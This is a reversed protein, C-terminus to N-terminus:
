PRQSGQQVQDTPPKVIVLPQADLERRYFVRPHQVRKDSGQRIQQAGGQLGSSEVSDGNRHVSSKLLEPVRRAAYDLWERVNVEGDKPSTDARDTKLGEEVLAYTLLGHGLQTEEMADEYGESAALVYMGKEYALQALGKSNMPGRREEDSDLAQGSNCADIVMVLKGAEIGEFARLLEEDSISHELITYLTKGDLHNKRGTYGLDYPIMYFHSNASTGHGAYYVFVTDEPQAPDLDQIATGQPANVGALRNLTGLINDKTADSNFLSVVEIRSFRNLERQRRTLEESFSQADQTAYRLDYSGNVYKNIGIAIIYAVGQRQLSKAGTVTLQADRSKVNSDNFAYATFRNTGAIIPVTIQYRAKDSAEGHWIKVLSGNRFLRVDRVGSPQSRKLDPPASEVEVVLMITRSPVPAEPLSSSLSLKVLPQRRDVDALDRPARPRKGAIIDALLGPYYFENFFAETPLVDGLGNGFRWMIDTWAGPSGDFLGDPSVVLWDGGRPSLLFAAMDRHGIDWLAVTGKGASALWKSNPSFTPSYPYTSLNMLERKESLDWVSQGWVWMRGGQSIATGGLLEGDFSEVINNWDPGQWMRAWVPSVASLSGTVSDVALGRVGCPGPGGQLQQLEAVWHAPAQCDLEKVKQGSMVDWISIADGRSSATAIWKGNPHFALLPGGGNLPIHLTQIEEGSSSKWIKTTGEVGAAALLTGDHSFTLSRIDPSVQFTKARRKDLDWLQVFGSRYGVALFRGDPSLDFTDLEEDGAWLNSQLAGSKLDWLKIQARDLAALYQSQSTFRVSQLNANNGLTLSLKMTSLDFILVHGLSGVALTQSDPSSTIGGSFYMVTHVNETDGVHILRPSGGTHWKHVEQGRIADWVRVQYDEDASAIFRSDCSVALSQVKSDSVLTKELVGSAANWMKIFKDDGASVVTQGDCSFALARIYDTHGKLVKLQEGTSPDWFTVNRDVGGSILLSGDPSAAIALISGMPSEITQLVRLSSDLVTIVGQASAVAIWSGRPDVALGGEVIGSLPLYRNPEGGFGVSMVGVWDTIVVGSGDSRFSVNSLLQKALQGTSNSSIGGSMLESVDFTKLLYGEPLGWLKLTGDDSVSALLDGRPSYAVGTVVSSHASQLVIEPNSGKSSGSAQAQSVVPAVTTIVGSLVIATLKYHNRVGAM